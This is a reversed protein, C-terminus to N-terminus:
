SPVPDATYNGQLSLGLGVPTNDSLDPVDLFYSQSQGTSSLVVTTDIATSAEVISFSQSISFDFLDTYKLSMSAHDSTKSAPSSMLGMLNRAANYHALVDAASIANNAGSRVSVEAVDGLLYDATSSPSAGIWLQTSGNPPPSGATALTGVSAGDVYLDVRSLSYNFVGVVHHWLGDHVAPGTIIRTTGSFISFEINGANLRLRFKAPAADAAVITQFGTGTSTRVLCEVWANAYYGWNTMSAYPGLQASDPSAMTVGNATNRMAPTGLQTPTGNFQLYGLTGTGLYAAADMVYPNAGGTWAVTGASDDWLNQLPYYGYTGAAADVAFRALVKDSYYGM